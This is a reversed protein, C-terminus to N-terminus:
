RIRYDANRILELAYDVWFHGAPPPNPTKSCEGASRGPNGIWFFGDLNRYREPVVSTPKPGLGRGPANCRFSNGFRVRSKPILPGRGNAATNIVYHPKGGLRRVLQRGYRIEKSTWDQHTSNTFFGQIRGVDVRRLLRAIFRVNHADGAGADVYVVAHPLPALSGIATRVEDIRRRLGIRSLCRTTILADIEYFLVVRHSGIGRAFSEYWRKYRDVEEPPDAYGGCAVHKLRYTAILPVAGPDDRRATQLYQAVAAGPQDNFGGFRKTEPQEAIVSLLAAAKPRRHRIQRIVTGALNRSPNTYFRAGVLPNVPGRGGPPPDLALPNLADRVGLVDNDVITLTARTPADLKQPYAGYIGVTATEADEVLDDDVIPVDFSATAQRDAFDLRGSVRVYDANEVASHQWIAYRVEGHGSTVSREVTITAAGDGERASFTASSLKVTGQALAAPAICGSAVAVLVALLLGPERRRRMAPAM